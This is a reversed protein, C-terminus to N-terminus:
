LLNKRKQRDARIIRKYFFLDKPAKFAIEPRRENKKYKPFQVNRM